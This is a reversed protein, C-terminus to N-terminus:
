VGLGRDIQQKMMQAVMTQVTPHNSVDALALNLADSETERDSHTDFRVVVIGFVQIFAFMPSGDNYPHIATLFDNLDDKQNKLLATLKDMVDSDHKWNM